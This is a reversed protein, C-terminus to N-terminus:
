CKAVTPHSIIKGTSLGPFGIPNVKSVVMRRDDVSLRKRPDLQQSCLSRRTREYERGDSRDEGVLWCEIPMGRMKLVQLARLATVQGKHPALNAMMLVVFRDTPLGLRVRAAAAPGPTFRDLDVANPVAIVPLTGRRPGLVQIIKAAIYRACAVVHDPPFRLAWEIEQANPEIHFHM